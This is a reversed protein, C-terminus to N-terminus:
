KKLSAQNQLAAKSNNIQEQLEEPSLPHERSYVRYGKQMRGSQGVLSTALGIEETRRHTGNKDLKRCDM